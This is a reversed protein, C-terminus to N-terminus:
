AKQWMCLHLFVDQPLIMLMGFGVPGNLDPHFLMYM